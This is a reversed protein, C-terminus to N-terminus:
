SLHKAPVDCSGCYLNPGYETQFVKFGAPVYEVVPIANSFQTFSVPHQSM